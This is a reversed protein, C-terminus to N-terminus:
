APVEDPEKSNLLAKGALLQRAEGAGRAIGLVTHIDRNLRVLHPLHDDFSAALTEFSSQWRELAIRLGANLDALGEDVGQAELRRAPLDALRALARLELRLAGLSRLCAPSPSTGRLWSSLADLGAMMAGILTGALLADELARLPKAIHEFAKGNTDLRRNEPVVCATLRLGCHGLPALAAPGAPALKALGPNDADVIFADFAKRGAAEGTVALVVCLDAAPGNSLYAKEGDIRWSEGHRSAHCSLHKPHAGVGPETIALAAIRDGSAMGQLLARQEDNCAHRAIVFRGLMENMLWALALGLNATERAILGSIRAIAPWDARKELHEADFGLGLLGHAALHRWWDRPFAADHSAPPASRLASRMGELPASTEPAPTPDGTDRAHTLM